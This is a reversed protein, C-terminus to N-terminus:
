VSVDRQMDLGSEVVRMCLRLRMILSLKVMVRKCVVSQEVHPMVAIYISSTDASSFFFSSLCFMTERGDGEFAHDRTEEGSQPGNRQASVTDLM